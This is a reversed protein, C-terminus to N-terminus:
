GILTQLEEATFPKGLFGKIGIAQAQNVEDDTAHASMLAMSLEPRVRKLEALVQLGSLEPMKLDCLVMDVELGNSIANIAEQGRSFWTVRYGLAELLLRLAFLVSEEDDVLLVHKPDAIENM